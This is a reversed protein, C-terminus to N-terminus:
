ANLEKQLQQVQRRLTRIENETRKIQRELVDIRQKLRQHAQPYTSSRVANLAPNLQEIWWQERSKLDTTKELIDIELFELVNDRSPDFGCAALSKKLSLSGRQEKHAAYCHSRWRKAINSSAGVYIEQTRKNTIRYIGSVRLEPLDWASISSRKRASISSRKGFNSKREESWSRIVRCIEDSSQGAAILRKVHSVRDRMQPHHIDGGPIHIHRTRSGEQWYFRYYWLKRTGNNKLTHYPSVWMAPAVTM